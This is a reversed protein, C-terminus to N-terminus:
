EIEDIRTAVIFDAETLGEVDHSWLMVDVSGFPTLHLEPHHGSAEAMVAVKNAFSLGRPFGEFEFRKEIHHEDVLRWGPQLNRLLTQAAQPSLRPYGADALERETTPNADSADNARHERSTAM